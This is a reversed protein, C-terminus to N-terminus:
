EIPLKLGRIAQNPAFPFGGPDIGPPKGDQPETACGAADSM